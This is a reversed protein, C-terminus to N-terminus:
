RGKGGVQPNTVVFFKKKGPKRENIVLRALGECDRELQTVRRDLARDRRLLFIFLKALFRLGKRGRKRPKTGAWAPHLQPDRMQSM